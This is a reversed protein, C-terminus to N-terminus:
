RIPPSLSHFSAKSTWSSQGRAYNTRHRSRTFPQLGCVSSPVALMEVCYLTMMNLYCYAINRNDRALLDPLFRGLSFLALFGVTLFYSRGRCWYM